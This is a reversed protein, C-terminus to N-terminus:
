SICEAKLMIATWLVMSQFKIWESRKCELVTANYKNFQEILQSLCPKEAVVVDDGLM